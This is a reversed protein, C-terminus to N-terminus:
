LGTQRELRRHANALRDKIYARRLTLGPNLRYMDVLETLIPISRHYQHLEEYARALAWLVEPYWKDLLIQKSRLHVVDRLLIVAKEAAGVTIYSDALTVLPLLLEPHYPPYIREAIKLDAALWAVARENNRLRQHARALGKLLRRMNSNSLVSTRLNREYLSEYCIVADLLDGARHHADALLLQSDHAEQSDLDFRQAICRVIQDACSQMERYRGMEGLCDAKARLLIENRSSQTQPPIEYAVSLTEIIALSARFERHCCCLRALHYLARAVNLSLRLQSEEGGLGRLCTKLHSVVTVGLGTRAVPYSSLALVSLAQEWAHQRNFGGLRIRAWGHVLPHISIRNNDLNILSLDALRVCAARLRTGKQREVLGSSRVKNCHWINLHDVEGDDATRDGENETPLRHIGKWNCAVDTVSASIELTEKGSRHEVVLSDATSSVACRQSWRVETEEWVYRNEGELRQCADFARMFFIEEVAERNLFALIDLLKIALHSDHKDSSALAIASVEFTTYVSGYRSAQQEPEFEMLRSQENRFYRIYESLTCYGRKIYAGAHVLALAHQGLISVVSKAIRISAKSEGAGLGSAKLLLQTADKKDLEDINKWTGHIRCETLRTTIIVSGGRSPIYKAFDITGDDCNDLILLWSENINALWQLIARPTADELPPAQM